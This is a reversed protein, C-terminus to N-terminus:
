TKANPTPYPFSGFHGVGVWGNLAKGRSVGPKDARQGQPERGCRSQRFVARVLAIAILSEDEYRWSLGASEVAATEKATYSRRVGIRRSAFRTIEHPQPWYPYARSTEGNRSHGCRHCEADFGASDSNPAGSSQSRPLARFARLPLSRPMIHREGCGDCVLSHVVSFRCLSCTHFVRRVPGEEEENEDEDEIKCSKRPPSRNTSIHM